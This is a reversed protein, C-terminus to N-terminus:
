GRSTADLGTSAPWAERKVALRALETRSRIGLKTFTHRLHSNVTDPSLFLQSAAERNTLGQAVLEAVAQESRTLSAWGRQARRASDDRKRVGLARLDARVRAADRYAGAQVYFRYAAELHTVAEPCASHAALLRGLDEQASAEILRDESAAARSVAERLAAPDDGTLAHAHLAVAALTDAHPNQRALVAAAQTIADASERDGARLAIAVLQTLRHHQLNAFGFVGADLQRRIPMTAAAAGAPDGHADAALAEAYNRDARMGHVKQGYSALASRADAMEGRRLATEVLVSLPFAIRGPYGLESAMAAAGAAEAQADELNGQSLLVGAHLVQYRYALGARGAAGAGALGARMLAQAEDYRGNATLATVVVSESAGSGQPGGLRRAVELAERARALADEFRGRLGLSVVQLEAVMMFEFVRGNKTVVRMAEALARDAIEAQGGWMKPMQELATLAAVVNQDVAPDRLVREPLPVPYAGPRDQYQAHRLELQLAAEAPVAPRHEALYREGVALAEATRGALGLVHVTTRVMEAGPDDETTLELRRLALDAADGPSAPILESVAQGIAALAAQDGPLAGIALHGAIRVVPAGTRTLAGAADRHLAVRASLPLTEYLAQRLLDHRFALGSPMETLMEARIAEAVPRLLESARLGTMESVEAVSFEQGLVSAVQLLRHGGESLSRLHQAVAARAAMPMTADGARDAPVGGSGSQLMELIYFPNGEAGAIRRALDADSGTVGADRALAVSDALSLPGPRVRVAGAADLRELLSDLPPCAPLPRLALVWAVPYSFLAFPLKGLALLTAPDAWQLDDLVLLVPSSACAQELADEMQDIVALRQDSLRRLSDLHSAALVPPQSSRFARLLPGWPTVRDLEDARGVAVLLGAVAARECVHALLRSKGVGAAGVVVVVGGVGQQASVTLEELRALEAERGRLPVM